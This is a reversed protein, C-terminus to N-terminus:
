QCFNYYEMHPKGRYMDPSRAKLPKDRPGEFTTLARVELVTKLIRQLDEKTYKSISPEAVPLNPSPSGASLNSLEDDSGLPPFSNPLAVSFRERCPCSRDQVSTM